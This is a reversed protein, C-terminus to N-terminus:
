NSLKPANRQRTKSFRRPVRRACAAAAIVCGVALFEKCISIQMSLFLLLRLVLAITMVLSDIEMMAAAQIAKMARIDTWFAVITLRFNTNQFEISRGHPSTKAPPTASPKMIPPQMGRKTPLLSAVVTLRRYALASM